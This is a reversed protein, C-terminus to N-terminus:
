EANRQGGAIPEVIEGIRDLPVMQRQVILSDGGEKPSKRESVRWENPAILGGQVADRGTKVREAFDPQILAMFDFEVDYNMRDEPRFFFAKMGAEYRELYPRLNFKYFGQVIQQIGGGWTTGAQTDNILVSPVGFFRAIDEIQFRRSSLLEIDQPSLSVQQFTMGAELVRMRNENGETLEAFETKIRKRQEDTLLKDIMLVGSPKGGNRYVNSTAREAASAIGLSQKAYELPSLGIIGNGFLKSHWITKDSYIKVAGSEQYRYTRVGEDLRVEMQESMLPIVAVPEGRANFDVAAYANGMLCLQYTLTEFFEQKTQWRNPKCGFLRHLPHEYALERVGTRRDVRYVNIPLSAISESILRVSAWVASLQLATDLTVPVAPAPASAPYGSQLGDQRRGAGTLFTRLNRLFAM